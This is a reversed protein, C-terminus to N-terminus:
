EAIATLKEFDGKDFADLQLAAMSDRISEPRSAGPIAFTHEGLRLIWHLSIAYTSVQYKEALEQLLRLHKQVQSHGHHGGVPSHAVFAIQNKQCTEIVRNRLDNKFLLHFRNQVAEIHVIKLAREIESASVNSLGINKIKGETRLRALEGVSDEIRVRPDVAHLYYLDIAEIELDKLSRECARRLSEPRCDVNWSGNPRVCGGKTAVIIPTTPQFKRIAKRILRENHGTDEDTLCYANATDIFDVGSEFAAKFVEMANDEAPRGEISLPMAGLGIPNLKFATRGLQRKSVPM